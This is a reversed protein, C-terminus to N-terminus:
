GDRELEGEEARREESTRELALVARRWRRDGEGAAAARRLAELM